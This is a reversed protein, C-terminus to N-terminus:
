AGQKLKKAAEAQQELIWSMGAFFSIRAIDQFEPAYHYSHQQAAHMMDAPSYTNLAEFDMTM